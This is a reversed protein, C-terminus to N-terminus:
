IPKPHANTGHYGTVRDVRHSCTHEMLTKKTQYIDRLMAHVLAKGSIVLREMYTLGVSKYEECRKDVPSYVVHFMCEATKPPQAIVFYCNPEYYHLINHVCSHKDKM